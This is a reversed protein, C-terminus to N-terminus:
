LGFPFTEAETRDGAARRIPTVAETEALWVYEDFQRPLVADFYHSQRETRPRYIVGIARELRPEMLAARVSGDGDGDGGARLPLLFRESGTERMLGEYSDRRAPQVEMVRMPGGWDDAAAVTGRDTGFGVLYAEDGFRERAQSGINIQGRQGMETAAAHGLHSNHAWVVARANEGRHELLAELTAFMHRDRLNWSATSGQYMVRYYQEANSVLRANQIADFARVGDQEREELDLRRQLLDGLMAAVEGACGELRGTVAAHGYAAPDDQWASLCGYRARALAAAEPDVDDLYALVAEVSGHMSYLDLGHFGVQDPAPRDENWHRLWSVLDAVEQNAWMWTPFRAFPRDVTQGVPVGRIHHDVRAADPWDAEVAVIRFGLREVLARTIATRLRYFESTGHSAEGLLVIRANGIRELLPDLDPEDIGSLPEAADRIAHPLATSAMAAHRM